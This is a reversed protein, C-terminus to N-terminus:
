IPSMWPCLTSPKFPSPKWDRWERRHGPRLPSPNQNFCAIAPPLTISSISHIKASTGMRQISKSNAGYTDYGSQIADEYSVLYTTGGTVSFTQVMPPEGGNVPDLVAWDLTPSTQQDTPGYTTFPGVTDKGNIGIMSGGEPYQDWSTIGGELGGAASFQSANASFDGNVILNARATSAGIAALTSLAALTLQFKQKIKM